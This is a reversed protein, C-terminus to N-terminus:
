PLLPLYLSFLIYIIKILNEHVYIYIYIYHIVFTAQHSFGYALFNIIIIYYVM